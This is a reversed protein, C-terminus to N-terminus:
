NKDYAAKLVPGKREITQEPQKESTDFLFMVLRRPTVCPLAKSYTFGAEALQSAVYDSLTDALNKAATPPLEETGIEVLLTKKSM